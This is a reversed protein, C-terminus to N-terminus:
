VDPANLHEHFAPKYQAFEEAAAPDYQELVKLAAVYRRWTEAFDGLLKFSYEQMKSLDVGYQVAERELETVTTAHTDMVTAINRLRQGFGAPYGDKDLQAAIIQLWQPASIIEPM